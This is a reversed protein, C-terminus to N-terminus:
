RLDADKRQGPPFGSLLGVERRATEAAAEHHGM